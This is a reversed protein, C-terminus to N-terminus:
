IKWNNGEIKKFPRRRHGTFRNFETLFYIVKDYDIRSEKVFPNIRNTRLKILDAQLSESRALELLESKENKSLHIM